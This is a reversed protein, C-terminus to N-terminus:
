DGLAGRDATKVLQSYFFRTLTSDGLIRYFEDIRARSEKGEILLRRARAEKARASDPFDEEVRKYLAAAKDLNKLDGVALSEQAVAIDYRAEAALTPDDKAEEALQEFGAKVDMIMKLPNEKLSRPFDPLRKIGLDWLYLHYRQFRAVLAQRTQPYEQMLKQAIRQDTHVHDVLEWLESNQRLRNNRIILYGVVLVVAVVGLSVWLLTRRQPRTKMRQVIRGMGAALTNTQLEKRHEAKM